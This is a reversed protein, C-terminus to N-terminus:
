GAIVYRFTMLVLVLTWTTHFGVTVIRYHRLQNGIEDSGGTGERIATHVAGLGREAFALLGWLILGLLLSAHIPWPVAGMGGLVVIMGIGSGLSGVAAIHGFPGISGATAKAQEPTPANSLARLQATVQLASAIWLAMSFYHVFRLALLSTM